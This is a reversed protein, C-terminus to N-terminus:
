YQKIFNRSLHFLLSKELRHTNYSNIQLKNSSKILYKASHFALLFINIEPGKTKRISGNTYLNTSFLPGTNTSAIRFGSSQRDVFVIASTLWALIFSCLKANKNNFASSELSKQWVNNHFYRNECQTKWMVTHFKCFKVRVVIWNKKLDLM